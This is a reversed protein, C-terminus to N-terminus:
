AVVPTDLDVVAGAVRGAAAAEHVARAAAPGSTAEAAGTGRGVLLVAGGHERVTHVWEGPVEDAPSSVLTREAVRLRIGGGPTVALRLGPVEPLPMGFVGPLVALGRDVLSWIEPDRQASLPGRAGDADTAVDVVLLPRDAALVYSLLTRVPVAAAYRGPPAM